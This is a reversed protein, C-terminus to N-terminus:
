FIFGKTAGEPAFIINGNSEEKWQSGQPLLAGIAEVDARYYDGLYVACVSVTVALLLLLFIVASFIRKKKKDSFNM